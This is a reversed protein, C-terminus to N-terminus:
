LLYVSNCCNVWGADGTEASVNLLDSVFTKRTWGFKWRSGSKTKCIEGLRVLEHELIYFGGFSAGILSHKKYKRGASYSLISSLISLHM